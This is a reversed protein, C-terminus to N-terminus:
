SFAEGSITINANERACQQNEAPLQLQGKRSSLVINLRDGLFDV